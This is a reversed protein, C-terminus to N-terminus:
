RGDGVFIEVFATDHEVVISPGVGDDFDVVVNAALVFDGDEKEDDHENYPGSACDGVEVMDDGPEKNQTTHGVGGDVGTDVGLGAATLCERGTVDEGDDEEEGGHDGKEILHNM